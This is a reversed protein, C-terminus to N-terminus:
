FDLKIDPVYKRFEAEPLELPIMKIELPISVRGLTTGNMCSWCWIFITGIRTEINGVHQFGIDSKGCIPCKVNPDKDRIQLYTRLWREHKSLKKKQRLKKAM